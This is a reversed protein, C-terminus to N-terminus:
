NAYIVTSPESQAAELRETKLPDRWSADARDDGMCTAQAECHLRPRRDWFSGATMCFSTRLQRTM